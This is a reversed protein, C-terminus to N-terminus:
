GRRRLADLGPRWLIKKGPGPQPVARGGRSRDRSGARGCGASRRGTGAGARGQPLPRRGGSRAGSGRVALRPLAVVGSGRPGAYTGRRGEAECLVVAQAAVDAAGARMAARVVDPLWQHRLLMPAASPELLPAFLDLRGTPLARAVLLFDANDREAGTVAAADRLHAAARPQDGRYVAILAAVGHLLLVGARQERMGLLGVTPADDTVVSSLAM